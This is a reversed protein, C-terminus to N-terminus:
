VQRHSTRCSESLAYSIYRQSRKSAKGVVCQGVSRTDVFYRRVYLAITCSVDDRVCPEVFPGIDVMINSTHFVKGGKLPNKCCPVM